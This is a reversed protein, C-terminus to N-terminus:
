GRKANDRHRAWCKPCRWAPVRRGAADLKFILRWGHEQSILTYVSSTQPSQDGCDICRPKETEM